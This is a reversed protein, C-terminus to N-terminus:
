WFHKWQKNINDKQQKNSKQTWWFVKIVGLIKRRPVFGFFRSDNSINRNDGLVFYKNKPVYISNRNKKWNNTKSLSKFSWSENNTNKPNKIYNQKIPRGNVNIQGNKCAVIDGPKGIIRKVYLKKTTLTPDVGNADFVIVSGRHLPITMLAWVHERNNLNPLMSPGSVTTPKAIYSVLGFTLMVLTVPLWLWNWILKIIKM